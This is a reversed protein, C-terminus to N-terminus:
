YYFAFAIMGSLSIVTYILIIFLIQLLTVSIAGKMTPLACYRQIQTQECVCQNLAFLCSGFCVTWITIRKTPDPSTELFTRGGEYNIKFVNKIGGVKSTGVILITILGLIMIFSQIFDTWIVAKMGGITTCVLAVAGTCLLSVWLPLGTVTELATAPAYMALAMLLTGSLINILLCIGQLVESNFRKRHYEYISTIKLKYFM